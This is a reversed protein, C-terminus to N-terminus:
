ANLPPLSPPFRPTSRRSVQPVLRQVAPPPHPAAPTPPTRQTPPLYAMRHDYIPSANARTEPSTSATHQAPRDVIPCRNRHHKVVMMAASPDRTLSLSRAGDIGIGAGGAANQSRWAGSNRIAMAAIHLARGLRGFGPVVSAPLMDQACDSIARRISSTRGVGGRRTRPPRRCDPSRQSFLPNVLSPPPSYASSHDFTRM